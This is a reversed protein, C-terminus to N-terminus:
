DAASQLWAGAAAGGFAIAATAAVGLAPLDDRARLTALGDVLDCVAGAVIWPRAGGRSLGALQGAGVALDRVGIVNGLLKGAPTTGTKGVWPTVIREPAALLAVGMGVRGLALLHSATRTDMTM